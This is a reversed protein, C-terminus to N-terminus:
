PGVDGLANNQYSNGDITPEAKGELLIGWGESYSITNDTVTANAALTLNAGKDAGGHSIVGNDFSVTDSAETVTIGTWGGATQAQHEYTVGASEWSAGDITLGVGDAFQLTGGTLTWSGGDVTVDGTVLVQESPWENLTMGADVSGGAVAVGDYSTGSLDNEGISPLLDLDVLIGLGEGAFSNDAMNDPHAEKIGGTVTLATDLAATFDCDEVYLEEAASHVTAGHISAFRFTAAEAAEGIQISFGTSEDAAQLAAYTTQDGYALFSGDEVVIDGSMVLTAGGEVQLWGEGQITVGTSLYPYEQAPLGARQELTAEGLHVYESNVEQYSVRQLVQAATWPLVLGTPVYALQVTDITSFTTGQAVLGNEIGNSLITAEISATGGSLEVLAGQSGAHRLTVWALQIEADQGVLGVWDGALPFNEHSALLIPADSEGRAVLSGGEVRLATDRDAYVEVGAEITLTGSVTVDCTIVHTADVSWSEEGSVDGCHEIIVPGEAQTDEPVETGKKCAPLILLMAAAPLLRTSM